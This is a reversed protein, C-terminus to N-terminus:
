LAASRLEGISRLGSVRSEAVAVIRVSFDEPLEIGNSDAFEKDLQNLLVKQFNVEARCESCENLHQEVSAEKSKDLEGDL